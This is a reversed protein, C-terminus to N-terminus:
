SFITQASMHRFDSASGHRTDPKKVQTLVEMIESFVENIDKEVGDQLVQITVHPLIYLAVHIHYKITASCTQFVRQAKPHKVKSILFGTWNSVWDKFNSGKCSRYIPKPLDSWNAATNLRYRSTLLPNLIEHVHEPLRQWLKGTIVGTVKQVAIEYEQILEQLAFASCDQIRPETAELFSKVLENILDIAFNDDEISAQFKAM